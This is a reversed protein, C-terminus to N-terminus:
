CQQSMIFSCLQQLNNSCPISLVSLVVNSITTWVVNNLMTSDDHRLLSPPVITNWCHQDIYCPNNNLTPLVVDADQYSCYQILRITKLRTSDLARSRCNGVLFCIIYYSQRMIHWMNLTRYSIFPFHFYKSWLWDNGQCSQCNFPFYNFVVWSKVAM